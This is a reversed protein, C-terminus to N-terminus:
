RFSEFPDLTKRAASTALLFALMNSVAQRAAINVALQLAAPSTAEDARLRGEALPGLIARGDGDVVAAGQDDVLAAQVAVRIETETGTSLACQSVVILDLYVTASQEAPAPGPGYGSLMDLSSAPLGSVTLMTRGNHGLKRINMM